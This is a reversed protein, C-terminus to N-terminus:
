YRRRSNDISQIVVKAQRQINLGILQCVFTCDLEDTDLQLIFEEDDFCNLQPENTSDEDQLNKM